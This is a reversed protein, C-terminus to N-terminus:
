NKPRPFGFANASSQSIMGPLTRPSTSPKSRSREPPAVPALYIAVGAVDGLKRSSHCSMCAKTVFKVARAEFPRGAWVGRVLELKQDALLKIEPRLKEVVQSGIVGTTREARVKIPDISVLITQPRLRREAESPSASPKGSHSWALAISRLSTAPSMAISRAKVSSPMRYVYGGSYLTMAPTRGITSLRGLRQWDPFYGTGFGPSHSTIRPRFPPVLSLRGSLYEAELKMARVYAVSWGDFYDPWRTTSVPGLPERITTAAESARSDGQCGALLLALGISAAFVRKMGISVGSQNL